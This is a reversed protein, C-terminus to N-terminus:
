RPPGAAVRIERDPDLDATRAPSRRVPRRPPEVRAGHEAAATPCAAAPAALARRELVHEVCIGILEADLRELSRAAERLAAPGAAPPPAFIMERLTEAHAVREILRRLDPLRHFRAREAGAALAALLVDLRRTDLACPSLAAHGAASGDAFLAVFRVLSGRLRAYAEVVDVILMARETDERRRVPVIRAALEGHRVADDTWPISKNM